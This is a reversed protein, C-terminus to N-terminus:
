ASYKDIESSLLAVMKAHHARIAASTWAASGGRAVDAMLKLKPSQEVIRENDSKVYPPYNTFKSNDSVTLLALNGLLNLDDASDLVGYSRMFEPEPSQPYFHEISNRFTFQFDLNKSKCALLYDLYTFTIRPIAFGTQMLEGDKFSATIKEVAYRELLEIVESAMIEDHSQEKQYAYELLRTIWHMTRPSTYTVRLAAQILRVRKSNESDDSSESEITAIQDFPFSGIYRPVSQENARSRQTREVVRKLSWAGDDANVATFERKLILSDFLLRCQLLALLFREARTEAHGAHLYEAFRKILRKDDLASENEDAAKGEVIRLVHLLFVPFQIISSFRENEVSEDHKTVKTQAYGLIAENLSPTRSSALKSENVSPCRAVLADFSDVTLASWSTGFLRARLTTDGPALTMQIYSDMLACADWVWAFTARKKDSQLAAMMRAKVIDQQQLQEGRTNMVEFYRNLDTREPLVLRAVLVKDLIFSLHPLLRVSESYQEIIRYGRVIGHDLSEAKDDTQDSALESTHSSEALTALAQDARPRSEFRLPNLRLATEPNISNLYTFLIHLTTLRQQGDVLSFRQEGNVQLSAVVINGLFYERIESDSGADLLDDILQHIETQDWAYNRQYVPVEYRDSCLLQRVTLAKARVENQSM